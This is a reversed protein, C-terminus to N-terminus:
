RFAKRWVELETLQDNDDGNTIPAIYPGDNFARQWIEAETPAKPVPKEQEQQEEIQEDETQEYDENFELM